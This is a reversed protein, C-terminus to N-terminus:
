YQHSIYTFHFHFINFISLSRDSLDRKVFKDTPLKLYDHLKIDIDRVWYGEDELQKVLHGGIFGGTGCVTVGKM